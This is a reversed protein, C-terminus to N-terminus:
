AAAGPSMQAVAGPPESYWPPLPLQILTGVLVM